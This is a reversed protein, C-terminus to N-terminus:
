AHGINAFYTPNSAICKELLREIATAMGAYGAGTPHGDVQTLSLYYTETILPM